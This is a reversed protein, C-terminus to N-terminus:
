RKHANSDDGTVIHGLVIYCKSAMAPIGSFATIILLVREKAKGGLIASWQKPMRLKLVANSGADKFVPQALPLTDNGFCNCLGTFLIHPKCGLPDSLAQCSIEKEKSDVDKYLVVGSYAAIATPTSISM